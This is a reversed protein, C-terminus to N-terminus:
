VQATLRLTVGAKRVEATLWDRFLEERVAAAVTPTLEGLLHNEVRVLEFQNARAIPGVVDGVRASFVLQQLEGAMDRRAIVGQLGGVHRTSEDRSYQRALEAFDANDDVIQTLLEHAAGESEVVLHSLVARDHLIRNQAFHAAIRGESVREAIKERLLALELWEEFDEVVLQNESLWRLTADAKEMGRAQRFHDASAQLEADSVTLGMTQAAQKLVWWELTSSLFGVLTGTVKALHLVEHVSIPTENIEAAIVTQLSM